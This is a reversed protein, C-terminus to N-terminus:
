EPVDPTLAPVRLVPLCMRLRACIRLTPRVIIPGADHPCGSTTVPMPPSTRDRRPKPACPEGHLPSRIAANRGRCVQHEQDTRRRWWSAERNGCVLEFDDADRCTICEAVIPQPSLVRPSRARHPNKPNTGRNHRSAGDCASLRVGCVYTCCRKGTSALSYTTGKCMGGGHGEPGPRKHSGIIRKPPQWHGVDQLEDGFRWDTANAVLRHFRSGGYIILVPFGNMLFAIHELHPQLVSFFRAFGLPTEARM